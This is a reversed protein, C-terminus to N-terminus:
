RGHEADTRHADRSDAQQPAVPPYGPSQGLDESADHKSNAPAQPADAHGAPSNKHGTESGHGGHQQGGMMMPMMLLMMPGFAQAPMSIGATVVLVVTAIAKM